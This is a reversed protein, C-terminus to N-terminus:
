TTAVEIWTNGGTKKWLRAGHYVLNEIAEARSRLFRAAEIAHEDGLAEIRCVGLNVKQESDNWYLHLEYETAERSRGTSSLSM